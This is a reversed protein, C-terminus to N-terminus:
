NTKVKVASQFDEEIANLDNQYARMVAKMPIRIGAARYKLVQLAFRELLRAKLLYKFNPALMGYARALEDELSKVQAKLKDIEMNTSVKTEFWTMIEEAIREFPKGENMMSDILPTYRRAIPSGIGIAITAIKSAEAALEEAETKLVIDEPGPTRPAKPLSSSAKRKRHIGQLDMYHYITARPIGFDKELVEIDEGAQFRQTLEPLIEQLNEPPKGRPM